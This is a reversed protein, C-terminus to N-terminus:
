LSKLSVRSAAIKTVPTLFFFLFCIQIFPSLGIRLKLMYNPKKSCSHKGPLPVFKKSHQTYAFMGILALQQTQTSQSENQKRKKM